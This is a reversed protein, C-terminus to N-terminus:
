ERQAVVLRRASRQLSYAEPRRSVTAVLKNEVVAERFEELSPVRPDRFKLGHEAASKRARIGTAARHFLDAIVDPDEILEGRM